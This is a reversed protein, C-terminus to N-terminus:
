QSNTSDNDGFKTRVWKKIEDRVRRFCIMIEAETGTCESPDEFSHHLYQGGCPFFPCTEKAHDCVTVVTHFKTDRFEEVSKSYHTSIDIGLEALAKIAYPNVRSPKTGASFAKYKGDFLANVLGEAM